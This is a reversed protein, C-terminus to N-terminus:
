IDEPTGTQVIEGDKMIMICRRNQLAENLDHSCLYNNQANNRTFWTISRAYRFPEISRVSLFSWGNIPNRDNALARALGVQQQVGVLYNHQYQEGYGNLGVLDLAENAKQDRTQKDIRQIELGYSTNDLNHPKPFLGSIRFSWAWKRAGVELLKRDIQMLDEPNDILVSGETPEILRNIM